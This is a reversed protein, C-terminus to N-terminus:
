GTASGYGVERVHMKINDENIDETKWSAMKWSREWLFESRV